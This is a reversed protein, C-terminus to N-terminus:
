GVVAGELPSQGKVFIRRSVQSELELLALDSGDGDVGGGGPVAQQDVVVKQLHTTLDHKAFNM